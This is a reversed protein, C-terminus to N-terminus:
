KIGKLPLSSRLLYAWIGFGILMFVLTCVGNATIYEPWPLAAFGAGAFGVITYVFNILSSASGTDGDHQMLLANTAGPRIVSSFVLSPVICIFFAWPSIRGAVLLAVGCAVGVALSINIMMRVNIWRNLLLYVFPAAVCLLAAAAFFLSYATSGMAFFDMYVYSSTTVYGMFPAAICALALLFLSFGRNKAVVAMRGFNGALTGTYRMHPLNTERYFVGMVLCLLGIAALVWFTLRWTAFTAIWGGIIPAIVPGLSNGAQTVVLVRERMRETFCDKVLAMGVAGGAGGGLAQLTRCILMVLINPALACGVSGLTFIALGVMLVPKRGYKDSLTGFILQGIGFFLFFLVITLSGVSSSIGFDDRLEPMSPMYMDTALPPFVSLFTIFVILGVRGLPQHVLHSETAQESM